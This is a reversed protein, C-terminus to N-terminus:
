WSRERWLFLWAAAMALTTEGSVLATALSSTDGGARHITDPPLDRQLRKEVLGSPERPGNGIANESDQVQEKSPHELAWCFGAGVSDTM